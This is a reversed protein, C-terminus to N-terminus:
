GSLTDVTDNEVASFQRFWREVTRLSVTGDDLVGTIEGFTERASKGRLFSFKLIACFEAKTFKMDVRRYSSLATDSRLVCLTTKHNLASGKLYHITKGSM